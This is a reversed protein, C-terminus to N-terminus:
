IRHRCPESVRESILFAKTCGKAIRHKICFPAASGILVKKQLIIWIAEVMRTM